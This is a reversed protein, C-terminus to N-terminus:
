LKSKDRDVWWDGGRDFWWDDPHRQILQKALKKGTDTKLRELLAVIWDKTRKNGKEQEDRLMALLELNDADKVIKAELTEKAELEFLEKKVEGGFSVKEFADEIASEEDVDVYKQHVYNLDSIRAEAFDHFLAMTLVKHEDANEDMQALAYAIVTTRYSHAAVNQKGTGLFWFGSRQTRDLIGAEYIFDALGTLYKEEM